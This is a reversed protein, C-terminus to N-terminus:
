SIGPTSDRLLVEFGPPTAPPRWDKDTVARLALYGIEELPVRVTTLAPTVDQSTQIDDFGALAIDDGVSRGAARITSMAGIAAIDSAAFIVTGPEVGAALAETMAQQGAERTYASRHVRLVEGGAATFGATFGEVRDDSSILGAQAALLIAKRYGRGALATGLAHTGAHNDVPVTRLGPAGRGVAVVRSGLKALADLEAELLPSAAAATTRTSALILGRPRQGRLAHLHRAERDPSRDTVAITVVLGAEDAAKAVGAAIQGFYPDAIDSVLLAVIAATGRATAQASLNATYGLRAAAAQVRERYGDAVRRASGNLVRSATALSVGAERAVDNLTVAPTSV